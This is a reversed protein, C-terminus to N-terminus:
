VIKRNRFALIIVIALISYSVPVFDPIPVPDGKAYSHMGALYYNVGFYTMLVSTFSLLSIVAYNFESYISKIFRLHVVVAYVLITVLAWTEKPDWGWYRGWSENAWVGGLFNGITLLVLGAMLSMENIANLEKISNTIQFKNNETKIIFLVVTIFGLLAGLGLFGYSATIMSVHISLWYSNLVPVLNTVQPNMWSLHAVFLILGALISTSALTIPSRKSFIFGALVTAWAIYTMSEFGNSWPAHGSIYWRLALGMTHAIFFLVLLSLSARTIFVMKIKPYIIKAFSVFLLVFGMVFYFPWLIEFVNSNNYFIEAKIKNESPYVAAGYKKQYAAIKALAVDSKSWSGSALAADVSTFYTIADARVEQSIASPFNQLAEITAFWKHSPDKPLPWIKILSGTFVMYAVNVKEDIKLVAKDLKNRNKPEKRTATEVLEGLKYGRMGKSDQFFQSFSVYTADSKAGIAANVKPDHTRIVKVNKYIDPRIMMGLIVQDATLKHSGISLTASRHMKALIENSLTNMPKMRGQADQVILRGFKKAHVKDFALITKVAPDLETAQSPTVTFLIGLALLAPIIKSDSAKKAKKALQAFRHKKSFLSWFMGIALLLYGIYSPLTGPDNNVSLITGKEDRDYSAQFFRYNKYDLIHNMYIRFPMNVGAKKDILVVESAYSAPSMSGPYRDLVFDVLKIKFPLIIKKAGYSVGVKVGDIKVYKPTAIIGEKGFVVVEETKGDVSVNFRLADVGSTNMRMKRNMGSSESSVLKKSAKPMFNRLVFSSGSKLSYLVRENLLEKDTASLDGKKRDAMRFYSLAQPHKMYLKDGDLFMSIVPKNFTRGSHFDLIFDGGDFYEGYELAVPKGSGQATIMFKAMPKGNVKDEVLQEVANPIYELLDMSVKKGEINLSEDLYNKSKKSFYISDSVEKKKGNESANLTVFAEASTIYSASQGERIHMNGEFGVYRTVAAGFLIVLFGIHFIFIPAKKLTYMKYNYINLMLNIALLGLLVEFWRANYVEAKATMTGYDNEIITAYGIMFAFILMLIAMTKMSAIMSLFKKM